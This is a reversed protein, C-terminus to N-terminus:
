QTYTPAYYQPSIPQHYPGGTYTNMQVGPGYWGGSYPNVNSPIIYPIFWVPLQPPPSASYHTLPTHTRQPEVPSSTRSRRSSTSSLSRPSMNSFETLMTLMDHDDSRAEASLRAMHAHEDAVVLAQGEAKYSIIAPDVLATANSSRKDSALRMENEVSDLTRAEVPKKNVRAGSASSMHGMTVPGRPPRGERALNVIIADYEVAESSDPAVSASSSLTGVKTQGANKVLDFLRELTFSSTTKTPAKLNDETLGTIIPTIEFCNDDLCKLTPKFWGLEHDYAGYTRHAVEYKDSPYNETDVSPTYKCRVLMQRPTEMGAYLAAELAKRHAVIDLPQEPAIRELSEFEAATKTIPAIEMDDTREEQEPATKAAVVAVPAPPTRKAKVKEAAATRKALTKEKQVKKHDKLVKMKKDAVNTTSNPTAM